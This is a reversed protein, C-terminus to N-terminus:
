KRKIVGLLSHLRQGRASKNFRRIGSMYKPKHRKWRLKSAKVMKPNKFSNLFIPIRRKKKLLRNITYVKEFSKKTESTIIKIVNLNVLNFLLERSNIDFYIDSSDNLSIIESDNNTLVKFKILEIENDDVIKFYFRIKSQDFNMYGSVLIEILSDDGETNINSLIETYSKEIITNDKSFKFEVSDEYIKIIIFGFEEKIDNKIEDVFASYDLLNINRNSILENTFLPIMGIGTTEM